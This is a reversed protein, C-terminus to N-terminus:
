GAKQVVSARRGSNIGPELHRCPARLCVLVVMRDSSVIAGPPDAGHTSSWELYESYSLVAYDATPDPQSGRVIQDSALPLNFNMRTLTSSVGPRIAGDYLRESVFIIADHEVNAARAVEYFGGFWADGARQVNRKVLGTTVRWAPLFAAAVVVPVAVTALLWPRARSLVLTGCAALMLATVVVRQLREPSMNAWPALLHGAAVAAVVVMLGAGLALLPLRPGAPRPATAM